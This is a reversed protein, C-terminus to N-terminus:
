QPNGGIFFESAIAASEVGTVARARELVRQFYDVRQAVNPLV